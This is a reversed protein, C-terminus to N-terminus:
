RHLVRCILRDLISMAGWRDQLKQWYRGCNCRWVAGHQHGGPPDCEHGERILEGSM